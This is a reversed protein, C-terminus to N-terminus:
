VLVNDDDHKCIDKADLASKDDIPGWPVFNLSIPILTSKKEEFM